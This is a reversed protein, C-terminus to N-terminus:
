TLIGHVHILCVFENIPFSIYASIVPISHLVLKKKIFIDEQNKKSGPLSKEEFHQAQVSTLVRQDYPFLSDQTNLLQRRTM